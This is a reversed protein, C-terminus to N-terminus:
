IKPIDLDPAVEKFIDIWVPVVTDSSYTSTKPEEIRVIMIMQPDEVPAFGVFTTNTRNDYYGAENEKPIQATGTKGGIDYETLSTNFWWQAEGSRVVNRMMQRVKYATEASVPNNLVQPEYQITEVEDIVESVLYPKMRVGDNALTSHASLVQLMTASIGQGYSTVALDLKTWQEYPLLYNTAEDQLGIGIFQGYGFETLKQYYFPFGIQLSLEALCPNNSKELMGSLSLDGNAQMNWTYITYDYLQISGTYDHCVYDDKINGSELGIAVTIPKEVSGFEYVDAVAKNKFVWPNSTKWYENPDYNPYNAMALIAGTEPDMIIASGSKAQMNIVGKKLQEEMKQQVSPIITLKLSKGSRPLVPEYEATLIVNGRSDKEEYSFSNQALMDGFYYGELGYMGVDEGTDTKGMFGLVHSALDGDPYVRKEQKEFYLGFGENFKESIKIQELAKKSDNSIGEALKVFAFDDVLKNEIEERQLGLIGSVEAVYKDKNNYFETREDEDTSLSAYVTWAPEDIALVTGDSALIVGRSSVNRQNEVHQSKALTNWKEHEFLQWRMMMAFIGVALITLLTMAINISKKTITTGSGSQKVTDVPNTRM